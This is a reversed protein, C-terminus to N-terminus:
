PLVSQHFDLAQAGDVVLRGELSGMRRPLSRIRVRLPKDPAREFVLRLCGPEAESRAPEPVIEEVAQADVWSGEISLEVDPGAGPGVTVELEHPAERHVIRDFAVSVDRATAQTSSLAGPGTLGVASALVFLFLLLWGIRQARWELREQRLDQDIEAARPGSM